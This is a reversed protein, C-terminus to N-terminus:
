ALLDKTARVTKVAGIFWKRLLAVNCLSRWWRRPLTGIVRVERKELSAATKTAGKLSSIALGAEIRAFKPSTAPNIALLWLLRTAGM